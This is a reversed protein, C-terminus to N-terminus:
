DAYDRMSMQTQFSKSLSNEMNEGEMVEKTQMEPPPADQPKINRENKYGRMSSDEVNKHNRIRNVENLLNWKNRQDERDQQFVRLWRLLTSSGYNKQPDEESKLYKM